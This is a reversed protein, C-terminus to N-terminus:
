QFANELFNRQRGPLVKGKPLLSSFHITMVGEKRGERGGEGGEGWEERGGKRREEDM